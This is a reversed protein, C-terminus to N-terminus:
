ENKGRQHLAANLITHSVYGLGMMFVPILVDFIKAPHGSSTPIWHVIPYTLAAILWVIWNRSVLSKPEPPNM